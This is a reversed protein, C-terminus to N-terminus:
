FCLFSLCVLQDLGNMFQRSGKSKPGGPDNPGLEVLVDVDFLLIYCLPSLQLVTLALCVSELTFIKMTTM